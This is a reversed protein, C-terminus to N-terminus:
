CMVVELIIVEWKTATNWFRCVLVEDAKICSGNLQELIHVTEMLLWPSTFTGLQIQHMYHQESHM